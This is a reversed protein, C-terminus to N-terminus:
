NTSSCGRTVLLASAGNDCDAWIDTSEDPPLILLDDEDLHDEGEVTFTFEQEPSEHIPPSFEDTATPIAGKIRRRPLDVPVGSRTDFGGPRTAHIKKQPLVEPYPRISTVAIREHLVNHAHQSPMDPTEASLSDIPTDNIDIQTDIINTQDLNGFERKSVLHSM